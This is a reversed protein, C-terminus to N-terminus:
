INVDDRLICPHIKKYRENLELKGKLLLELCDSADPQGKLKGKDSLRVLKPIKPSVKVRNVKKSQPQSKPNPAMELKILV